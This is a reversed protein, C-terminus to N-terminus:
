GISNIYNDQVKALFGGSNITPGDELKARLEQYPTPISGILICYVPKCLEPRAQVLGLYVLFRLPTYYIGLINIQDQM